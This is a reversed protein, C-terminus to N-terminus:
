IGGPVKVASDELEGAALSVILRPCFYYNKIM